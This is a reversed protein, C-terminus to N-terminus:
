QLEGILEVLEIFRKRFQLAAVGVLFEQFHVPDREALDQVKRKRGTDSIEAIDDEVVDHRFIGRDIDPFDGLANKFRM